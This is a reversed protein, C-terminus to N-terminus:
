RPPDAHGGHRRQRDRRRAQRRLGPGQPWDQPHVVLVRSASAARSTLTHIRGEYSYYGGAAFLWSCTFQVSEGTTRACRPSPGGHERQEVLLRVSCGTAWASTATSGTRAPPRAYTSAPHVAGDAIAKEDGGHAQVRLRPHSLDSDSRIGPYRFLDWTGGTASARRSSWTARARGSPGAPPLRVGIGSVGAGVILVDFHAVPSGTVQQEEIASVSM